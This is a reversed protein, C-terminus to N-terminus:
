RFPSIVADVLEEGDISMTTKVHRNGKKREKLDESEKTEVENGAKTGDKREKRGDKM